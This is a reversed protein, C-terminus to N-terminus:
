VGSFAAFGGDVAVVSGTVFASADSVLWVLAGILEEPEGYRGMPTHAKITRGRATDEGSETFLLTHNQRTHFFGPAIANVRIGAPAFHVALWQTFNSIAAKAASYAPIKTLPRYANMSSINLISGRRRDVMGRGFVQTPLLTGLFNLNFVFQIGAPDLQFFSPDIQDAVSTGGTTARPSNGGAGNLLIDVPGFESEVTAAASEISARDLVDCRVGIAPSGQVQAAVKQAASEDLDLVAVRVGLAGLARAMEGCLIGGGGTIVAVRGSIDFMRAYDMAM